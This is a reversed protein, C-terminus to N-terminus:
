LNRNGRANCCTIYRPYSRKYQKTIFNRSIDLLEVYFLRYNGDEIYNKKKLLELEKLTQNTMVVPSSKKRKGYRILQYILFILAILILAGLLYWKYLQWYDTLELHVEKNKM